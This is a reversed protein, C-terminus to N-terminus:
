DDLYHLLRVGRQHPWELILAFIRTFVQPATSLAFCLACFQYVRSELFFWLYPSSDPRIPIQFYADKLVISFMWDGKRISGLVSAVM